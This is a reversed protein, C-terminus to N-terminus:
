RGSVVDITTENSSDSSTQHHRLHPALRRGANM